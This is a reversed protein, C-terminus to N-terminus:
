KAAARPDVVHGTFLLRQTATDRIAFFFPRDISVITVPRAAASKVGVVVGTAAAAETGKEDVAIFTQHFVGTIKLGADKGTRPAGLGTLDAGDTFALRLGLSGLPAKLEQAFGFSFKPLSLAIRETPALTELAQELPAKELEALSKGKAPLVLVLSLTSAQYPLEVLEGFPGTAHGMPATVHMTPVEVAGKPTTFTAPATAGENFPVRFSARLWVANAVVLRTLTDVSGAPLLETIKDNTQGAVWGNIRQRTPDPQTAFDVQEFAGGFGSQAREQFPALFAYSQDAFVRNVVRLAAGTGAAEAFAKAEAYGEAATEDASASLSLSKNMEDATKGKAGLSVIALAQRASTGSLLVNRDTKAVARFLRVAFGNALAAADPRPPTAPAPGFAPTAASSAPATSGAPSASASSAPTSATPLASPAPPPVVKPGGHSPADKPSCAVAALAAGALGVAFRHRVPAFIM